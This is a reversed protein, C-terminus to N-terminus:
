KGSAKLLAEMAANVSQELKDEDIKEQAPDAGQSQEREQMVKFISLVMEEACDTPVLKLMEPKKKCRVIVNALVLCAEMMMEPTLELVVMKMAM